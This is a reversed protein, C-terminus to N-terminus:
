AKGGTPPAEPEPLDHDGWAEGNADRHVPGEHGAKLACTLMRGKRGQEVHVTAGCTKNTM